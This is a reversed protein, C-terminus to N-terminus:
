TLTVILSCTKMSLKYKKGLDSKKEQKGKLIYGIHSSNAAGFQDAHASSCRYVGGCVTVGFYVCLVHGGQSMNWSKQVTSAPFQAPLHRSPRSDPFILGFIKDRQAAVDSLETNYSDEM